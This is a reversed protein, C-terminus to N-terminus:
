KGSERDLNKIRELNQRAIADDPNIQLAAELHPRAAAPNGEQLYIAGLSGQAEYDQPNLQIVREFAKRAESLKNQHLYVFGLEYFARDYNPNAAVAANFHDLAETVKGLYFEARGARTHAEADEPNEKVVHENYNATTTALHGYFDQGLKAREAPNCPLVQFWLEGMEDTTQLGYKVRKPPQNPNRINEATNDYTFHMALKTGAPLFIPRAYRYDGQWNFDWDKILILDQKTGDPLVADGEMRKALYHAHPSVGVLNVDIPLVYADEIEYGKMGAPIDIILPNLNIRFAMNTPREQTFYFGVAPQITEPKGSPHLHLQLVLDTNTELVWAQGDQSFRPVKGPQWGLFQGGPMRATETLVMGDFGPPNEKEARRRSFRTPDVNIFAHHVVKWNGPQFEVARVYKREPTPIPFVFNRYVDKGDPGLRYAQPLKVVLDPTGLQWGETWKPPPPLDAAAGEAMGEAFWRRFVNIQEDSLSRDDAFEGHGKEPLWPPMYRKEVVEAVQKAHKKVDTYNLLNFPASQGPHHCSACHGFVLPAVDRNFTFTSKKGSGSQPATERSEPGATALREGLLAALFFLFAQKIRNSM